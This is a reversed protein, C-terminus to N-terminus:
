PDVPPLGNETSVRSATDRLRQFQATKVLWIM